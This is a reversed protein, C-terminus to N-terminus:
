LGMQFTHTEGLSFCVNRPWSKMSFCSHFARARNKRCREAWVRGIWTLNLFVFFDDPIGRGNQFWAGCRPFLAHKPSWIQKCFVVSFWKGSKQSVGLSFRKTKSCIFLSQLERCKERKRQFYLFFVNENPLHQLFLFPHAGGSYFAWNQRFLPGSGLPYRPRAYFTPWRLTQAGRTGDSGRRDATRTRREKREQALIVTIQM